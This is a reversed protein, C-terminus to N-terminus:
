NLWASACNTNTIKFHMWYITHYLLSLAVCFVFLADWLRSTGRACPLPHQERRRAVRTSQAARHRVTTLLIEFELITKSSLLYRM